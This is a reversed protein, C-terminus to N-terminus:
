GDVGFEKGFAIRRLKIHKPPHARFLLSQSFPLKEVDQFLCFFAFLSSRDYGTPYLGVM